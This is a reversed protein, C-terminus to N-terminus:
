YPVVGLEDLTEYHKRCGRCTGCAHEATHCSHAWGLIEMPVESVRILEVATLTVAPADLAIKGEQSQLLENMLEIFGETGDAHFADTRLTGILLRDAGLAIGRMSALTILMQNRFPWWESAPANPLAENGSMDGSGLAKLDIQIVHHEIGLVLCVASAARIEAAAARQGYDITIALDPCKWFAIAISDM